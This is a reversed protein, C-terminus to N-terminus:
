PEHWPLKFWGSRGDGSSKGLVKNIKEWENKWYKRYRGKTFWYYMRAQTTSNDWFEFLQDKLNKKELELAELLEPLEKKLNEVEKQKKEVEVEHEDKTVGGASALMAHFLREVTDLNDGTFIKEFKPENDRNDIAAIAADLEPIDSHRRNPDKLQGGVGLKREDDKVQSALAGKAKELAERQVNRDKLIERWDARYKFAEPDNDFDVMLKILETLSFEYRVTMQERWNDGGECAMTYWQCDQWILAQGITPWSDICVAYRPVPDKVQHTQTGPGRKAEFKQHDMPQERMIPFPSFIVFEHDLGKVGGRMLWHEGLRDLVNQADAIILGAATDAHENCNGGNTIGTVKATMYSGCAQLENQTVERVVKKKPKPPAKDCKCMKIILGIKYPSTMGGEDKLCASIQKEDTFHKEEKLWAKLRSGVAAAQPDSRLRLAEKKAARIAEETVQFGPEKKSKVVLGGETLIYKDLTRTFYSRYWSEEKTKFVAHTINGAGYKLHDTKTRCMVGQAYKLRAMRKRGVWKDNDHKEELKASVTYGPEPLQYISQYGRKDYTYNALETSTFPLRM